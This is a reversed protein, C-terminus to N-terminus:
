TNWRVNEKLVKLPIGGIISSASDLRKNLLTGAAIVCGDSSGAGKIVTSRCGIWVNDGFVIPKSQNIVQGSFNRIEHFDNDMLLVDWSLLCNQGFSIQDICYISTGSGTQFNEGLLLQGSVQIKAAPGIRTKGAFVVRGSVHWVSKAAEDFMGTRDFGIQIIGTRCEAIEVQGELCSFAVRHSVLFPLKIAQSFKL